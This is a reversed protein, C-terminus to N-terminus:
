LLKGIHECCMFLSILMLQLSDHGLDFSKYGLNNVSHLLAYLCAHLAAVLEVIGVDFLELLGKSELSFERWQDSIDVRGVILSFLGFNLTVLLRGHDEGYNTLALSDKSLQAVVMLDIFIL